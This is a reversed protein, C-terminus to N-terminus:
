RDDDDRRIRFADAFDALSRRTVGPLASVLIWPTRCYLDCCARAAARLEPTGPAFQYRVDGTVRIDLLNSSALQQLMRGAIGTALGTERKVAGADWWREPSQVLLMLVQLAEVSRVHATIFATVQPSIQDPM